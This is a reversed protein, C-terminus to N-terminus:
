SPRTAAPAPVPLRPAVYLNGGGTTFSLVGNEVRSPVTAGRSGPTGGEAILDVPGTLGPVPISVKGGGHVVIQMIAGNKVLRAPEVPAWALLQMPKDAFVTTRGDITIRDTITGCFAVPVGHDDARFALAHQGKYTVTHGNVKFDALNIQESPLKLGKVIAEDQKADRAFGGPWSEELDRLHPAIAVTGNPFRCALYGTARSVYETNDNVGALRGTPPYAGLTNLIDFWHREEYGLSGSQDDRPRLGLVVRRGGGPLTRMTGVIQGKVRALVATDGAPTLPYVHDVLFDTLISMPGVNSLAGEFQVMKGPVGLGETLGPTYNVGFLIQWDNLISKGDRGLVPPPGSWIARGGQETLQRMIELLQRSPFPEFEAVLTTFRRGAMEVAGNVVKGRELLKDQTVYNAYGYQSMWSGFREEAAVLDIPYLMLVQVDRHQNDQVMAFPALASAGSANSLALRRRYIEHPAGWFAAYSNPVDNLIGTSAALSIAYYNRDIWGGEATDNGNGTLFDGWKFYDHCAAAAQHVTNSWIFGPTYEYKSQGPTWNDCTPSEAWTAHARADMRHGMRQELHKKAGVFLDVVGDQLLKYYRSRMLAAARIDQPSTGFVHMTKENATLDSAYDNQGYTFYILWRAFDEYQKGYLAAFQRALGPSVYRMAFQGHEQRGGYFWDQQIHMEDSYLGNLKVGADVYRDILQRLYRPARESFYDMEPTDYMQVVLVRDLGAANAVGTGHVNVRLSRSRGQNEPWVDVKATGTIEVISKPDVYLYPTGSLRQERFAFVRVGADKLKITGKNNAWKTQRWLQVSYDGSQPDRWGKRYHMWVGHEGTEAAYAPGIELPTLMSLELGIGYQQAFKSIKAILSIYEPKDPTLQRPKDGQGPRYQQFFQDFAIALKRQRAAKTQECIQRLSVEYPTPGLSINVKRDPDALQELQEDSVLIITQHGIQFGWPGPFDILEGHYVNEPM